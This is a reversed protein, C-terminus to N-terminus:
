LFDIRSSMSALRHRTTILDADVARTKAQLRELRASLFGMRLVLKGQQLSYSSNTNLMEDRCDLCYWTGDIFCSSQNNSEEFQKECVVCVVSLLSDTHLKEFKTKRKILTDISEELKEMEQIMRTMKQSLQRFKRDVIANMKQQNKARDEIMNQLATNMM